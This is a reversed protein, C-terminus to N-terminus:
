CNLKITGGKVTVGGSSIEIFNNANVAISIKNQELTLGPDGGEFKLTISGDDDLKVLHGSTTEVTVTKEDLTISPKDGMFLLSIKASDETDDFELVHGSITQITRQAPEERPPADQGNWLYGVVYPNRVQGHEFAVLVEDGVEPMFQIGREPGAMPAAIRAWNSVPESEAMWPFTLQIRGLGDPDDLSQVLGTVVGPIRKM